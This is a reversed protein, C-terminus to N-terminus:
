IRTGEKARCKSFTCPVPRVLKKKKYSSVASYSQRSDLTLLFRYVNVVQFTVKRKLTPLATPHMKIHSPICSTSSSPISIAGTAKWTIQSTLWILHSRCATLRASAHMCSVHMTWVTQDDSLSVSGMAHQLQLFLQPSSCTSQRSEAWRWNKVKLAEAVRRRNGQILM